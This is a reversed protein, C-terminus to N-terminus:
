QEWAGWVSTVRAAASRYKSDQFVWPISQSDHISSTRRALSSNARSILADVSSIATNLETDSAALATALANANEFRGLTTTLSASNGVTPWTQSACSRRPARTTQAGTRSPAM